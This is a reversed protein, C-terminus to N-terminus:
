RVMIGAARMLFRDKLYSIITNNSEGDCLSLVESDGKVRNGEEGWEDWPLYILNRRGGFDM